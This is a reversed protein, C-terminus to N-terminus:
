VTNTKTQSIETLMIGELNIWTTTFTLIEYKKHINHQKKLM